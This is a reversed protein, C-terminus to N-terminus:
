PKLHRSLHCDRDRRSSLYYDYAFNFAENENTFRRESLDLWSSPPQHYQVIWEGEFPFVVYAGMYSNDAHPNPYNQGEKLLYFKVGGSVLCGM